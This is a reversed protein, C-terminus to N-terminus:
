LRMQIGEDFAADVLRRHEAGAPVVLAPAVVKSEVLGYKTEGALVANREDREVNGRLDRSFDPALTDRAEALRLAGLQRFPEVPHVVAVARTQFRHEVLMRLAAVAIELREELNLQEPVRAHRLGGGAVELCVGPPADHHEGAVSVRQAGPDGLAERLAIRSCRGHHQLTHM